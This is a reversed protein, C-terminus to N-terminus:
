EITTSPSHVVPRVSWPPRVTRGLTSEISEKERDRILMRPLHSETPEQHIQDECGDVNTCGSGSAGSVRRLFPPDM